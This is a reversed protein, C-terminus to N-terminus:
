RDPNDTRPTSNTSGPMPTPRCPCASPSPLVVRERPLHAPLPGRVPRRRVSREGTAPPPAAVEDETAAAEQEELQLEELQLEMQDLLKRSRESFAGLREHRLKAILLSGL